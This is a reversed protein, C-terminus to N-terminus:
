LGGRQISQILTRDVSTFLATLNVFVAAEHELLWSTSNAPELFWAYGHRHTESPILFLFFPNDRQRYGLWGGANWVSECVTDAFGVFADAFEEPSVAADGGKSEKARRTVEDHCFVEWAVEIVQKTKGTLEALKGIVATVYVDALAHARARGQGPSESFLVLAQKRTWNTLADQSIQAADCLQRASFRRGDLFALRDRADRDGADRLSPVWRPEAHPSGGAQRARAYDEPDEAAM